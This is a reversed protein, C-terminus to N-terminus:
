AEEKQRSAAYAANVYIYTHEQDHAGYIARGLLPYQALPDGDPLTDPVTLHHKHKELERAIARTNQLTIARKLDPDDVRAPDLGTLARGYGLVQYWAAELAAPDQAAEWEEAAAKFYDHMEVAEPFDRDFKALRNRPINVVTVESPLKTVDRNYQAGRAGGVYKVIPQDTPIADATHDAWTGNLRMYYSGTPRTRYGTGVTDRAVKIAQVPTWDYVPTGKLWYREDATLKDVFVAQNPRDLGEQTLWADFKDRKPKSFEASKFGTFWIRGEAHPPLTRYHDGTKRSYHYAALNAVLYGREHKATDRRDFVDPLVRGQYKLDALKVGWTGGQQALRLAEAPTPASTVKDQVASTLERKVDHRIRELTDKTTRTMQLAERSPTFNVEGIDVFAITVFSARSRTENGPIPYPVNGMVVWGPDDRYQMGLAKRDRLLLKDKVLWTADPANGIFAPQEGNVLVTGPTWYRFFDRAKAEFANGRKTPIIVEVGDRDGTHEDSVITMSGGGDEDRSVSVQVTRGDKTGVLTFQDTYTLGSKAGLGLMGVVDNSDRKTSTGYRSYIDRIDDADMGIGYDRIRLFPALPTPLTVEIPAPNGADRHADLANTSYERLVALEPDSYLDTLVSMIHSVASMDIGMGVREGTLTSDVDLIRETPKM